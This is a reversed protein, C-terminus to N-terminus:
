LNPYISFTILYTNYIKIFWVIHPLLTSIVYFALYHLYYQLYFTLLSWAKPTYVTMQSIPYYARTLNLHCGPM